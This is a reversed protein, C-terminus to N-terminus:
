RAMFRLLPHSGSVDRIMALNYLMMAYAHECISHTRFTSKRVRSAVELGKNVWSEAQEVSAPEMSTRLILEAINGMLQAARCQDDASTVQPPPPILISIAQLYLPMAYSLFGKILELVAVPKRM